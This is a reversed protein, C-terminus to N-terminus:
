RIVRGQIVMVLHNGISVMFSEGYDLDEEEFPSDLDEDAEPESPSGEWWIQTDLEMTTPASALKEKSEKGYGPKRRQRAGTKKRNKRKKHDLIAKTANLPATTEEKPPVEMTEAKPYDAPYILRRIEEPLSEKLKQRIELDM